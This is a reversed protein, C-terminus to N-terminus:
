WAPSRTPRSASRTSRSTAAWVQTLTDMCYKGDEVMKPLGRVRGEIRRLRKLYDEKSPTYGHM